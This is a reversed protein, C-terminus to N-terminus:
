DLTVVVAADTGSGKGILKAAKGVLTILRFQIGYKGKIATRVTEFEAGRVVAATGAAPETGETLNGRSDCPQLTVAPDNTLRKVKWSSSATTFGVKGDALATIWVPSTKPMGDRTYTTIAVYKEDSISM